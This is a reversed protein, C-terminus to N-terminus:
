FIDEGLTDDPTHDPTHDTPQDPSIIRAAYHVVPNTSGPPRRRGLKRIGHGTLAKGAARAFAPQDQITEGTDHQYCRTIDAITVADPGGPQAPRINEVIWRQLETLGSHVITRRRQNISDPLPCNQKRWHTYAAVAAIALTRGERTIIRDSLDPNQHQPPTDMQFPYLRRIWAQRDEPGSAYGPPYNGTVILLPRLRRHEPEPSHKRELQQEDGAALRKLQSEAAAHVTNNPNLAPLDQLILARGSAIQYSSFRHTLQNLDATRWEGVLRAIVTGLTGKGTGGTGALALLAHPHNQYLLGRGVLALLTQQEQEPIQHTLQAWNPTKRQAAWESYADALPGNTDIDPLKWPIPKRTLWWDPTLPRTELELAPNLTLALMNQWAEAGPMTQGTDVHVPWGDRTVTPDTVTHLHAPTYLARAERLRASSLLDVRDEDNEAHEAVERLLSDEPLPKWGDPTTQWWENGRQSRAGMWVLRAFTAATKKWARDAKRTADAQEHARATKCYSKGQKRDFYNACRRGDPYTYSCQKRGFNKRRASAIMEGLTRNTHRNPDGETHERVEHWMRELADENTMGVSVCSAALAVLHDHRGGSPIMRDPCCNDVLRQHPGEATNGDRAAREPPHTFLRVLLDPADAVVRSKGAPPWGFEVPDSNWTEWDRWGLSGPGVIYFGAGVRIDGGAGDAILRKRSTMAEIDTETLPSRYILRSRGEGLTAAMWTRATKLAAQLDAPWVTPNDVDVVFYGHPLVVGYGTAAKWVAADLDPTSAATQNWSGAEAAPLKGQLASKRSNGPIQRRKLPFVRADPFEALFRRVHDLDLTPNPNNPQPTDTQPNM